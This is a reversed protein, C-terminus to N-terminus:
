TQGPDALPPFRFLREKEAVCCTKAKKARWVLPVLAQYLQRASAEFARIYACTHTSFYNGCAIHKYCRHTELPPQPAPETNLKRSCYPARRAAIIAIDYLGAVASSAGSSHKQEAAGASDQPWVATDESHWWQALASGASQRERLLPTLPQAGVEGSYLCFGDHPRILGYHWWAAILAAPRCM